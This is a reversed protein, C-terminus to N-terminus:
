SSFGPAPIKLSGLTKSALHFYARVTCEERPVQLIAAERQKTLV